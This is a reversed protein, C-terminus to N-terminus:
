AGHIKERNREAFHEPSKRLVRMLERAFVEEPDLDNQVCMVIATMFVGGLEQVIDGPPRDYVTTTVSYIDSPKVGVAQCTEVAEEVLRLARVRNDAVHARGFCRVAWDHAIRFIPKM